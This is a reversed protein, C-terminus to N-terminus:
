PGPPPEPPDTEFQLRNFENMGMRRLLRVSTSAQLPNAYNNRQYSYWLGTPITYAFVVDSLTNSYARIDDVVVLCSTAGPVDVTVYNQTAASFYRVHGGSADIWALVPNMNNDFAMSLQLVGPRVISGTAVMPIAEPGFKITGTLVEYWVFWNQYDRGKSADNLAIGGRCSRSLPSVPLNYPTVFKGPIPEETFEDNPIM